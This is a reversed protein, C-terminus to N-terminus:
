SLGLAAGAATVEMGIPLHLSDAKGQATRQALGVALQVVRFLAPDAGFDEAREVPLALHGAVAALWGPLRWRRALRRAIAAQDFGWHVQEVAAPHVAHNPDDLCLAVSAPHVACVALWGLPALLGAVWACEPDCHGTCDA